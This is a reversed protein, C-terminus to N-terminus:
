RDKKRFRSLVRERYPELTREVQAQAQGIEHIRSQLDVIAAAEGMIKAQLTKDLHARFSAFAEEASKTAKIAAQEQDGALKLRQELVDVEARLGKVEGQDVSGRFWWASGLGIGLFILCAVPAKVFAEWQRLWFDLDM